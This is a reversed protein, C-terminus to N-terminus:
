LISCVGEVRCCRHDISFTSGSLCHIAVRLEKASFIMLVGDACHFVDTLPEKADLSVDDDCVSRASRLWEGCDSHSMRFEGVVERMRFFLAEVILWELVEANLNHHSSAAISHM